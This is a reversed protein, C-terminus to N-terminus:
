SPCTCPATPACAAEEIEEPLERSVFVRDFAAEAEPAAEAGHFREVLKASRHKPFLRKFWNVAAGEPEAPM